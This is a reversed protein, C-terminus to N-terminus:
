LRLGDVHDRRLLMRTEADCREHQRNKDADTGEAHDQNGTVDFCGVGFADVFFRRNRDNHPQANKADDSQINETDPKSHGTQALGIARSDKRYKAEDKTIMPMMPIMASPTAM